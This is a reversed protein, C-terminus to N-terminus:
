RGRGGRRNAAAQNVGRAARQNQNKFQNANAQVNQQNALGNQQRGGRPNQMRERLATLASQLEALGLEGSGDADFNAIMMGALENPSPMNQNANQNGIQNANNLNGRDNFQNAAQNGFARQNATNFEGQNLGRQPGGQRGGGGRPGGGGGRQALADQCFLMAICVTTIAISSTKM